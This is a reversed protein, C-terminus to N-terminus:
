INPLVSYLIIQETYQVLHIQEFLFLLMMFSTLFVASTPVHTYAQVHININSLLGLKVEFVFDEYQNIPKSYDFSSRTLIATVFM